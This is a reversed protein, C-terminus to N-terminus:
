FFRSFILSGVKGVAKATTNVAVATAGVVGAAKTVGWAFALAGTVSGGYINELEEANVTEFRNNM